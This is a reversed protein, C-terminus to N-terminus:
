NYIKCDSNFAIRNKIIRFENQINELVSDPAVFNFILKVDSTKCGNQLHKKIENSKSKLAAPNKLFIFQEM